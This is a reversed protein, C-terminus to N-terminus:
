RTQSFRPAGCRSPEGGGPLGNYIDIFIGIFYLFVDSFFGIPTIIRVAYRFGVQFLAPHKGDNGVRDPSTGKPHIWSDQQSSQPSDNSNQFHSSFPTFDNSFIQSIPHTNANPNTGDAIALCPTYLPSAIWIM